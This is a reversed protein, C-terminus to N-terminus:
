TRQLVVIRNSNTGRKGNTIGASHASKTFDQQNMIVGIRHCPLGKAANWVLRELHVTGKHIEGVEMAIYGGPRVIRMQEKLTRRIMASWDALSRHNSFAVDDLDVGAFWARLWNDRKYDVVDAFPPSTLVLDVSADEIWPTNWAPGVTLRHGQTDPVCGDRLFDKSRSLVIKRLDREPAPLGTRQNRRRQESLTPTPQNPPVTQRSLYAPTHGTIRFLIAMRIWDLTRDTNAGELQANMALVRRMAELEQLTKPHFFALLDEHEVPGPALDLADLRAAIDDLAIPALRPHALMLSVPNIDSGLAVRGMIASQIATTGRGLHPDHVTAGISSFKGIVFAALNGSFCAHYPGKQLAHSGGGNPPWFANIYYRIGDVIREETTRGQGDYARIDQMVNEIDPIAAVANPHARWQIAVVNPLPLIHRIDTTTKADSTTGRIPILHRRKYNPPRELTLIPKLSHMQMPNDAESRDAM